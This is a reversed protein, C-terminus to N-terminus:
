FVHGVGLAFIDEADTKKSYFLAGRYASANDELDHDVCLFRLRDNFETEIEKECQLRQIKKIIGKKDEVINEIKQIQHLMGDLQTLKDLEILLQHSDSILFQPISQMMCLSRRQQEEASNLLELEQELRAIEHSLNLSSIEIKNRLQNLKDLSHSYEAFNFVQTPQPILADFRSFYVDRETESIVDMFMMRKEAHEDQIFANLFTSMAADETFEEAIKRLRGLVQKLSLRGKKTIALIINAALHPKDQIMRGVQQFVEQLEVPPRNPTLQEDNCLVLIGKINEFRQTIFKMSVASSIDYPSMVFAHSKDRNDASGPMDILAYTKDQPETVIPFITKSRMGHGVESCETGSIKQRFINGDEEDEAEQYLCGNLFNFLTTKGVGTSGFLILAADKTNAPMHQLDDVLRRILSLTPDLPIGLDHALAHVRAEFATSLATQDLIEEASEIMVGADLKPKYDISEYGNQLTQYISYLALQQQRLATLVDQSLMNRAVLAQIRNVLDDFYSCKNAIQNLLILKKNFTSKFVASFDQISTEFQTLCTTQLSEHTETRSQELIELIPNAAIFLREHPLNKANLAAIQDAKLPAGLDYLRQAIDFHKEQFALSAASDGWSFTKTIGVDHGAAHLFILGEIVDVRGHEAAMMLPTYGSRIEVTKKFDLTINLKEFIVWNGLLSVLWLVCYADVGEAVMHNAQVNEGHIVAQYYQFARRLRHRNLLGNEAKTANILYVTEAFYGSSWHFCLNGTIKYNSLDMADYGAIIYLLPIDRRNSNLNIRIALNYVWWSSHYRSNKAGELSFNIPEKETSQSLVAYTMDVISQRSHWAGNTNYREINDIEALHHLVNGYRNLANIKAGNRLATELQHRQSKDFFNQTAYLDAAHTSLIHRKSELAMIKNHLMTLTNGDFAFEVLKVLLLRREEMQDLADMLNRRKLDNTVLADVPVAQNPLDAASLARGVMNRQHEYQKFLADWSTSETRLYNILKAYTQAVNSLKNCLAECGDDSPLAASLAGNLFLKAINIFLDLPPLNVFENPIYDFGLHSQLQVLIFGIMNMAPYTSLLEVALKASTPGSAQHSMSATFLHQTLWKELTSLAAHRSEKTLSVANTKNLDGQIALCADQLQLTSIFSLAARTEAQHQKVRAEVDLVSKLIVTLTDALKEQNLLVQQLMQGLQVMAKMLAAIADNENDDEDGATILVAIGAAIALYGCPTMWAPASSMSLITSGIAIREVGKGIDALLRAEPMHFRQAILALDNACSSVMRCGDSFSINNIPQETKLSQNIEQTQETLKNINNDYQKQEPTKTITKKNISPIITHPKQDEITINSPENELSKYEPDMKKLDEVMNNFYEPIAEFASDVVSGVAKGVQKSILGSGSIILAAAGALALSPPAAAVFASGMTILEASTAIEAIAASAGSTIQQIPNDSPHNLVKNTINTVKIANNIPGPLNNGTLVAIKKITGLSDSAEEM